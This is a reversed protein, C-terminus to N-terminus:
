PPAFCGLGGRFSWGSEQIPEMTLDPSKLSIGTSMQYPWRKRRGQLLEPLQLRSRLGMNSYSAESSSIYTTFTQWWPSTGMHNESLKVQKSCPEHFRSRSKPIQRDWLLEWRYEGPWGGAWAQKGSVRKQNSGQSVLHACASGGSLQARKARQSGVLEGRLKLKYISECLWFSKMKAPLPGAWGNPVQSLLQDWWLVPSPGLSSASNGPFMGEEECNQTRCARSRNPFRQKICRRSASMIPVPKTGCRGLSPAFSFEIKYTWLTEGNQGFPKSSAMHFFLSERKLSQPFDFSFHFSHILSLQSLLSFLCKSELRMNWCKRKFIKGFNIFLESSATGSWGQLLVELKIVSHTGTALHTQFPFKNRDDPTNNDGETAVINTQAM